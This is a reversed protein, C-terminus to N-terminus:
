GLHPFRKLNVNSTRAGCWSFFFLSFAVPFKKREIRQRRKSRNWTKWSRTELQRKLDQIFLSVRCNYLGQSSYCQKSLTFHTSCFTYHWRHIILYSTNRFILTPLELHFYLTFTKLFLTFLRLSLIFFFTYHSHILSFNSSKSRKEFYLNKFDQIFLSVKCNYLRSM